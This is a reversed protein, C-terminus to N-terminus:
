SVATLPSFDAAKEDSKYEFFSVLKKLSDAQTSLVDAAAAAEEVLAVNQQTVEDMQGISVNVQGIGESQEQSATTIEAIVASLEKISDVISKLSQGSKDALCTGQYVKVASDEILNKIEKAAVSSRGALNRVEDAVVAFGRGSSGARAAEVSANLALLNTQFAIQEIVGIIESIKNSSETIDAMAIVTDSVVNGGQIAQTQTETALNNARNLNETNQRVAATMQEMSSATEELNAAQQETRNSLDLNGGAIDRSSNRVMEASEAIESMVQTLKDGTSNVGDKLQAFSGDYESKITHTLDGKSLADVATVTDGIARDCVDILKNVDESLRLFFSKKNGIIIRQGLNGSQARNVINQIEVETHVQQTRDSWETVTGIRKGENNFVPTATIRINLEGFETDITQTGTLELIQHKFSDPSPHNQDLKADILSDIDFNPVSKKFETLYSNVFRLYSENYYGIILDNDVFLINNTANDVATKITTNEAAALRESLTRQQLKDRMESMSHYVGVANEKQIEIDLQDEAIASAVMALQEPSAGLQRMTSRIVLWAVLVVVAVCIGAMICSLTFLKNATEFAESKDIEALISWNLGSIKLPAYSSLVEVGRYDTIIRRGSEGSVAARTGETDVKLKGLTNSDSFRSQSRMLKDSGVLYTEGSEGLGTSDITIANIRDVPMQFILVGIQQDGDYIPSSIFSAAAEYSPLYPSFDLIHTLGKKAGISKRYAMALGSDKHPGTKLSTAYDIEKFVSYVINGQRMDVLFIDYYGFKELFNRLRPHFKGHANSYNSGDTASDLQHKSGLPNSNNSIYLYQARKATDSKPLLQDTNPTNDNSQRYTNGFQSQYYLRLSETQDHDIADVPLAHFAETFDKTAEVVMSNEAMTIVQSDITDFYAEIQKRRIERVSDLQAFVQQELGDSSTQTLLGSAILLPGLGIALMSVLLKQSFGLNLQKM